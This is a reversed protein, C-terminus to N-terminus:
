SLLVSGHGIDSLDYPVFHSLLNKIAVSIILSISVRSMKSTSSLCSYNSTTKASFTAMCLAIASPVITWFILILASVVALTIM